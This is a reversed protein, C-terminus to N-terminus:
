EFVKSSIISIIDTPIHCTSVYGFMKKQLNIQRWKRAYQIGFIVKLVSRHGYMRAIHTAIFFRNAGAQILQKVLAPNGNKCAWYLADEGFRNKHHVNQGKTKQLLMKVLAVYGKKTALILATNGYANVDNLLIDDTKPIAEIFRLVMCENCHHIFYQLKSMEPTWQFVTLPALPGKMRLYYNLDNINNHVMIYQLIELTPEFVDQYIDPYERLIDLLEYHGNKFTKKIVYNIQTDTMPLKKQELIFRILHSTYEDWQGRYVIVAMVIPTYIDTDDYHIENPYYINVENRVYSCIYEDDISKAIIFDDMSAGKSILFKLIAILSKINDIKTCYCGIHRTFYAYMISLLLRSVDIEHNKEVETYLKIFANRNEEVSIIENYHKCIHIKYWDVIKSLEACNEM